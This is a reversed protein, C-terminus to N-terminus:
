VIFRLTFKRVPNGELDFAPFAFRNEYPSQGPVWGEVNKMIEKEQEVQESRWKLWERDWEAQVVPLMYLRAWSKERKIERRERWLRSLQYGGWFSILTFTIGVVAMSIGKSPLNRAYRIKPYGKEPPLDQGVAERKITM